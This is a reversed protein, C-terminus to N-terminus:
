SGAGGDGVVDDDPGPPDSTALYAAHLALVREAVSPSVLIGDDALTASLWAAEIPREVETVEDERRRPDLLVFWVLGAGIVLGVILLWWNFEANVAPLIGSRPRTM